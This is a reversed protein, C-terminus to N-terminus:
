SGAVHLAVDVMRCAYGFENDYWVIIKVMDEVAMTSLADVTGSVTTGNLDTSVLPEESYALIGKLPGESADKLAANVEEVSAPRGLLAVLDVVSVNPTPVRIAMGNLKGKLQPLVLGVAKAAGTTTPIMNVAAARARRLDKHPFDLLRQDGTYSHTTTMLGKKIGFRDLLVKCPPALCNTTCSANSIIHHKAADYEHENVGMVLTIDPDTAPASIVVKRVGSQLHLGAKDRSRFLGTCELVVEAGVDKWPINGPDKETFLRVEKGNVVVADDTHSIEADLIGQTSDYKLLHALIEASTLDNVAVFEIDDRGLGARFIMRGIRGFGNIAVKVPM